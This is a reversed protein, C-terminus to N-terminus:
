RSATSHKSRRGPISNLFMNFSSRAEAVVLPQGNVQRGEVAALHQVVRDRGLVCVRFEEADAAEPWRVFKTFNFIMAARLRDPDPAANALPACCLAVLLAAIRLKFLDQSM